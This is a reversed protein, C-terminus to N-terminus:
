RVLLASSDYCFFPVKVLSTPLLGKKEEIKTIALKALLYVWSGWLFGWLSLM